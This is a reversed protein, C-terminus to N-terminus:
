KKGLTIRAAPGVKHDKVLRRFEAIGPAGAAVKLGEVEAATLGPKPVLGASMGQPGNVAIMSEIRGSSNYHVIYKM